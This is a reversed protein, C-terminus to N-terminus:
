MKIALINVKMIGKFPFMFIGSLFLVNTQLDSLNPQLVEMVWESHNM